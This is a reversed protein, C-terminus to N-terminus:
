KGVPKMLDAAVVPPNGGTEVWTQVSTALSVLAATAATVAVVLLSAGDLLPTSGVVLLSMVTQALTKLAREGAYRLFARSFLSM